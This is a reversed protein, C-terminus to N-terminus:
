ASLEVHDHVRAMHAEHRQIASLPVRRCKHSPKFTPWLGGRTAHLKAGHKKGLQVLENVQWVTCGFREATEELSYTPELAERRFIEILQAQDVGARHAVEAISLAAAAGRAPRSLDFGKSARRM